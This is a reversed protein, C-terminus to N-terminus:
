VCPLRCCGRLVLSAASSAAPMPAAGPDADLATQDFEPDAITAFQGTAVPMVAGVSYDPATRHPPKPKPRRKPRRKHPAHHPATKQNRAPRVLLSPLSATNKLEVSQRGVQQDVFNTMNDLPASDHLLQQHFM